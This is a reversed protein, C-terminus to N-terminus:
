TRNARRIKAAESADQLSNDFVQQRVKRQNELALKKDKLQADLQIKQSKLQAEESLKQEPPPTNNAELENEIRQADNSLAQWKQYLAKFEAKRSPLNELVKLHDSSHNGLALIANYEQQPDYQGDLYQQNIQEAKGLHIQLHKVHDQRAGVRAEGGQVLVDTEVTAFSEDATVSNNDDQSRAYRDVKNYGVLSATLDQEINIKRDDTTQGYIYQMLMLQAQLQAAASGSGISKVATVEEIHKLAEPPVGDRKCREQFMRALMASKGNGVQPRCLMKLITHYFRSRGRDYLNVSGKNIKNADQSRMAYELYTQRDKAEPQQAMYSQNNESITNKLESSMEVLGKAINQFQIGQVPEIGQPLISLVGLKLLKLKDPDLDGTQRMPMTAAFLLSDVAGNTLRNSMEFFEKTKQGIGRISQLTGNGLDYPFINTPPDDFANRKKFLYGQSGKKEEIIYVSWKGTEFEKAYFFNMFLGSIRSSSYGMDGQKHLRQLTTPDYVLQPRIRKTSEAMAKWTVDVDWGMERAKSEDEICRYIETQPWFDRVMFFDGEEEFNVPCDDPFLVTGARTTRPIWSSSFNWVHTGMGHLVMNLIRTLIHVDFGDWKKFMLWTFHEEIKKQMDDREIGQGYDLEVEIAKPVEVDLNYISMSINSVLGELGRYNTRARWGQASKRLAELSYTPNGGWLKEVQSRWANLKQDAAIMMDAQQQVDNADKFREPPLKGPESIPIPLEGSAM